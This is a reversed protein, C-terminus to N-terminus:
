FIKIKGNLIDSCDNKSFDEKKKMKLFLKDLDRKNVQLPM